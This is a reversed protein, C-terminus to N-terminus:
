DWVIVERRCKQFALKHLLEVKKIAALADEYNGGENLLWNATKGSFHVKSGLKHKRAYDMIRSNSECFVTGFNPKSADQVAKCHEIRERKRGASDEPSMQPFRLTCGTVLDSSNRFISNRHSFRCEDRGLTMPMGDRLIDVSLIYDSITQNYKRGRGANMVIAGGVLGPVSYLYEIGGYGMENVRNILQQLRVSAGVRFVGDGEHVFTPNFDRLVVVLDFERDAILLNSGGGLFYKPKEAKVLDALEDVSEPMLLRKAIGGIRITTYQDLGQNEARKM